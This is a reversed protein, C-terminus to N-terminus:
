RSVRLQVVNKPRKPSISFWAAAEHEDAIERYNTFLKQPSNGLELATRAADAVAALRYTAYSHRLANTPWEVGLSKAHAIARKDVKSGFIHGSRDRYPILWQMLNPQIPVLRRTATKTKEAAIIIHGREFNVDAWDLRMIESTRMGTFAGLAFYLQFDQRSKKLLLELQAPTLIGIKGGREKLKPVDDAETDQGKPLYHRARAFRFFTLISQRINNRGRPSLQLGTLWDEILKSVVNSINTEFSNAFRNLHSRLAQIYRNSLGSRGKFELFEDVIARV